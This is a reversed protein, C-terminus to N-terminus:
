RRRRKLLALGGMALLGMTAPEPTLELGNLFAENFNSQSADNNDSITIQVDNTGDSVFAFSSSAVTGPDATYSQLLDDEVLATGNADDLTIDITPKDDNTADHHWMTITYTGADLGAFTLVIDTDNKVADEQMAGLPYTGTDMNGRDRYDPNNLDLTFDGFDTFNMSNTGNTWGSQLPGSGWDVLVAANATASLGALIIIGLAITLSKSFM